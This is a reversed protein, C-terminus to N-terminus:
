YPKRPQKVSLFNTKRDRMFIDIAPVQFNGELSIVQSKSLSLCSELLISIIIKYFGMSTHLKVKLPGKLRSPCKRCLPRKDFYIHFTVTQPFSGIANAM